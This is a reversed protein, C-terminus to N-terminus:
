PARLRKREREYAERVRTETTCFRHLTSKGVNLEIAAKRYNGGHRALARVVASLDLQVGTRTREPRPTVIPHRM